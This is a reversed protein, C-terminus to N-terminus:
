RRALREAHENAVSIEFGDEGTYGSRTAFCPIGDVVVDRGTMFTWGTFEIDPCLRSMVRAAEPGQLALLAHDDLEVVDCGAAGPGGLEARLHATDQVKCSANVVVFLHDARRTVMLDDLIGGTDDTFLAYRQKGIALGVVDVPVMAELAAAAGSGELRLQGMHSVDFLM